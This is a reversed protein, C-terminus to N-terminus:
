LQEKNIYGDHDLDLQAFKLKLQEVEQNQAQM